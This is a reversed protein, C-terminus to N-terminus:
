DKLSAIFAKILEMTILARRGVHRKVLAGNKVLENLKTKKIGLVRMADVLPVLEISIDSMTPPGPSRRRCCLGCASAHLRVRRRGSPTRKMRLSGFSIRACISRILSSAATWRHTIQRDDAPMPPVDMGFQRLLESQESIIKRMDEIIERQTAERHRILNTALREGALASRYAAVKTAVANSSHSRGITCAAFNTLRITRCELDESRPVARVYASRTWFPLRIIQVVFEPEVYAKSCELARNWVTAVITRHHQLQRM